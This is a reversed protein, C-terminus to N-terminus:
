SAAGSLVAERVMAQIEPNDTHDHIVDVGNGHILSVDGVVPGFVPKGCAASQRFRLLSAETRGIVLRAATQDLAPKAAWGEGDFVSVFYGAASAADLLASIVRREDRDLDIM